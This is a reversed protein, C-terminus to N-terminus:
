YKTLLFGTLLFAFSIIKDAGDPAPFVV